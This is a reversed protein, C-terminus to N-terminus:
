LETFCGPVPWTGNTATGNVVGTCRFYRDTRDWKPTNWKKVQWAFLDITLLLLIGTCFRLIAVRRTRRPVGPSLLPTQLTSESSDSRGTPRSVEWLLFIVFVNCLGLIWCFGCLEEDNHIVMSRPVFKDHIPQLLGPFAESRNLNPYIPPDHTVTVNAFLINEIDNVASQGGLIVGPSMKPRNIRINSLTINRYRSTGVVHCEAVPDQPWCLSCPNPHCPSRGDAQQAPGFWIPWQLPREMVINEFHIDEMLGHTRNVDRWFNSITHFKAYIGKVSKHLYSDRFTINRVITGGISGLVIGLGSCNVREFLMNESTFSGFM